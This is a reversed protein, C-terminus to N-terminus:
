PAAQGITQGAIFECGIRKIRPVASSQGLCLHHLMAIGQRGMEMFDFRCHSIIKGHHMVEGVGALAAVSVNGPVSVELKDLTALVYGALMDDYTIIATAAGQARLCTLAEALVVPREQSQLVETMEARVRLVANRVAALRERADSSLKVLIKVGQRSVEHGQGPDPGIYLFRRHGRQYLQDILADAATANDCAVCHLPAVSPVYDLVVGPTGWTAFSQLYKENEVGVLLAGDIHSEAIRDALALGEQYMSFLRVDNRAQSSVMIGRFIESLYRMSFLFHSSEPYIMGACALPRSTSKVLAKKVFIGKPPVAKVVGEKVLADMARKVTVYSVNFRTALERYPPLADGRRLGEAAILAKIGNAVQSMVPLNSQLFL